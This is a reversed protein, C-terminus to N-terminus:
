VKGNSRSVVSYRLVGKHKSLELQDPAYTSGTRTVGSNSRSNSVSDYLSSRFHTFPPVCKWNINFLLFVYPNTASNAVAMGGLVSAVTSSVIQHNGYSYIMELVQYPFGCLIFMAVIVVTMKLTKVKARPLSSSQTSTLVVKGPKSNKRPRGEDVKDSIKLFIRIYCIVIFTLPIFFVVINIYTLYASRGPTVRWISECLTMNYFPSKHDAIFRTRFVFLQPLSLVLSLGYGVLVM